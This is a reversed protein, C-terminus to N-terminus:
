PTVREPRPSLIACLVEGVGKLPMPDTLFEHDFRSAFGAFISLRAEMVRRVAAVNEMTVSMGFAGSVPTPSALQPLGMLRKAVHVVEGVCTWERYGQGEVHFFSIRGYSLGIRYRYLGNLEFALDHLAGMAQGLFLIQPSQPDEEQEPLVFMIEDGITKDILFTRGRLIGIASELFPKLFEAIQTPSKRHAAESFGALDIFGVYATMEAKGFTGELDPEPVNLELAKRVMRRNPGTIRVEGLRHRLYALTDPDTVHM